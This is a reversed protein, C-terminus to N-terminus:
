GKNMLMLLSHAHVADQLNKKETEEREGRESGGEGEAESKHKAQLQIGKTVLM